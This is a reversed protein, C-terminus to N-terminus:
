RRRVDLLDRLGDGLFNFALVTASVCLGPFLTLHPAVLLYQRGENLMAGWSPTPPQAGLGLFSLSAEAVVAGALGFTAEVIVPGQISPLLHRFLLRGRGSGLATAAEVFEAERVVLVQGRALRAYGVWGIASLALIVNTLSPGLIAALAIALLIGPFAQLIDVARMAIEDVWGGWLGAAAGILVGVTLSIGVALLAVTFSVRGGFLVRSLVDRGLRDQGFPHALSPGELGERLVQQTAPAPALLPAFLALGALLAVLLSTGLLLPRSRM